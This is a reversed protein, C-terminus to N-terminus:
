SLLVRSQRVPSATYVRRLEFTATISHYERVIHIGRQWASASIVGVPGGPTKTAESM